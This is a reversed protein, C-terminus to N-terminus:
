KRSKELVPNKFIKRMSSKKKKNQIKGGGVTGRPIEQLVNDANNSHTVKNRFNLLKGINKAKESFKQRNKNLYISLVSFDYCINM